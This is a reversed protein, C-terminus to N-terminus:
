LLWCLETLPRWERSVQAFFMAQQSGTIGASSVVSSVPTLQQPQLGFGVEELVEECCVQVCASLCVGAPCLVCTPHTPRLAGPTQASLDASRDTSYELAFFMHSSDSDQVDSSAQAPTKGAKDM